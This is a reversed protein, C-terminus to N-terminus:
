FYHVIMSRVGTIGGHSDRVVSGPSSNPVQFMLKYSQCMPTHDKYIADMVISSCIIIKNTGQTDIIKQIQDVPMNYTAPGLTIYPCNAIHLRFSVVDCRLQLDKNPPIIAYVSDEKGTFITISHPTTNIFGEDNYRVVEEKDGGGEQMDINIAIHPTYTTHIDM